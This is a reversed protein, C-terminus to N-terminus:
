DPVLKPHTFPLRSPFCNDPFQANIKGSKLKEAAERYLALFASFAERMAQRLEKSRAHFRPAPSRDLHEPRTHPHVAEIRKAGLPTRKRSRNEARAEDEIEHILERIRDRYDSASLEALAPIPSLHLTEESTFDSEDVKEGRQRAQHMADRDIWVGNVSRHGNDLDNSSSAGPWDLPSAVLGEKICGQALIYKLRAVQMEEEDSVPIPRYRRNWVTGSWGHLRNVERALSGNAYWQFEAMQQVNLFSALLQGHNSLYGFAHLENGALKQARALIGVTIQNLTGSPRLLYRGQITRTTLETLTRGFVSEPLYRPDRGM